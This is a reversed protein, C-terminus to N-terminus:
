VVDKVHLNVLLVHQDLVEMVDNLKVAYLISNDAMVSLIIIRYDREGNDRNRVFVNRVEVVSTFGGVMMFIEM